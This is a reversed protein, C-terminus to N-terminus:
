NLQVNEVTFLKAREFNFNKEQFRVQVIYGAPQPTIVAPM